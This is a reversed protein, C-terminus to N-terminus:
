DEEDEDGDEEHEEACAGQMRRFALAGAEADRAKFADFFDRVADVLEGDAGKEDAKGVGLLLALAGQKKAM